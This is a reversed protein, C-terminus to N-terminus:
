LCLGVCPLLPTSRLILVGLPFHLGLSVCQAKTFNQLANYPAPQGKCFQQMYHVVAGHLPDSPLCPLHMIDVVHVVSLALAFYSQGMKACRCVTTNPAFKDDPCDASIGTCYEAVDCLVTAPRCIKTAPAFGGDECCVGSCAALQVLMLCASPLNAFCHQRNDSLQNPM